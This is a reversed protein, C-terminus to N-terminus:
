NFNNRFFLNLYDELNARTLKWADKQQVVVNPGAAFLGSAVPRSTYYARKTMLLEKYLSHGSYFLFNMNSTIDYFAERTKGGDATEEVQVNTKTFVIDFANIVIAHTAQHEDMMAYISDDPTVSINTYGSIVTTEISERKKIEAECTVLVSDILKKFLKEKNKRYRKSDVDYTHLILIRKPTSGLRYVPTTKKYNDITSIRNTACGTLLFFSIILCYRM